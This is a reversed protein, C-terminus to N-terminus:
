PANTSNPPDPFNGSAVQTDYYLKYAANSAYKRKIDRVVADDRAGTFVTNGNADTKTGTFRGFAEVRAGPDAYNGTADVQHASAHALRGLMDQQAATTQARASDNLAGSLQPGTARVDQDLYHGLRSADMDSISDPTLKSFNDRANQGTYNSEEWGKNQLADKKKIKDFAGTKAGNWLQTAQNKDIKGDQVDRNLKERYANLGAVDLQQAMRNAMAARGTATKAFQSNRDYENRHDDTQLSNRDGLALAKQVAPTINLSEAQKSADGIAKQVAIARNAAGVSGSGGGQGGLFGAAKGLRQSGMFTGLGAARNQNRIKARDQYGKMATSEAASKGAKAARGSIKAEGFKLLKGGASFTAPILFLPMVTGILVAIPKFAGPITASSVAANFIRSSAFLMIILPYMLLIRLLGSYWTKFFKDTGPLVWAAMALPATVVLMIIVIQRFLLTFFVGLVAFFGSVAVLLMTGSVAATAAAGAVGAFVAILGLGGTTGVSGTLGSGSPFGLATNLLSILGVGLVNTADVAISVLFFSIQVLIAAAILRPLMKKVTYSSMSLLNGFIIVFFIIVFIVNAISRLANWVKFSSDSTSLPTVQLFPVILGEEIDKVAAAIADLVPCILWGFNGGDCEDAGGGSAAFAKGDNFGTTCADKQAQVAQNCNGPTSQSSTAGERFGIRCSRQVPDTTSSGCNTEAAAQIEAATPTNGAAAPPNAPAPNGFAAGADYATECTNKLQPITQNCTATKSPTGNAGAKFGKLCAAGRPTSAAPCNANAATNIEAPTPAALAQPAIVTSVSSQPLFFVTVQTFVMLLVALLVPLKFNKGVKMLMLTISHNESCLMYGYM